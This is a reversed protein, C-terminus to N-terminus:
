RIGVMGMSRLAGMTPHAVVGSEGKSAGSQGGCNVYRLLLLALSGRVRYSLRIARRMNAILRGTPIAATGLMQCGDASADPVDCASQGNLFAHQNHVTTAFRMRPLHICLTEAVDVPARNCSVRRWAYPVM